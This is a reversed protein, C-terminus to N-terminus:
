SICCTYYCSCIGLQEKRRDDQLENQFCALFGCSTTIITAGESVLRIGADIFPQLLERDQEVVVREPSAGPVTQYLVPFDFTEPNGIDGPLRPFRTDLKIVGLVPAMDTKNIM